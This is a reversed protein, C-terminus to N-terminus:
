LAALQQTVGAEQRVHSTPRAVLHERQNSVSHPQSGTRRRKTSALCEAIPEALRGEELLFSDHGYPAEICRHEVEKGAVVLARALMESDTPPYLWDSSFSLLLYRARSPAVAAVLDGEQDRALDFYTLARSLYLYSNADFRRAFRDGQARLYSEVAFDAGGLSFSYDDRQQLRRGFKADMGDASLYTVHGVMRAVSIGSVPARGSGYYDGGQWDPDALIANRAIANWAVGQSGLRPTSAIPICADVAAPFARAWELAQMGGLSGGSVALLREIGLQRLAQRQARVMDSVTIVPFTAGYPRGTRPDSSSPGTSGGCGGLVNTCIVFYRNTDFAKGPGILGDWWGVAGRAASSTGRLGDVADPADEASVGAAHANGSLAHCILVVNDRAPSLSGYTEYAIRVPGFSAGSDLAVPELLDVYCTHTVGASGESVQGSERRSSTRLVM